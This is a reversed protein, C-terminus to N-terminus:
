AQRRQRLFGSKLVELVFLVGCCLEVWFYSSSYSSRCHRCRGRLILFSIVPLNDYWCICKGCSTCHSAAKSLSEGRPIRWVCVNLFSGWCAGFAFIWFFVVAWVAPYVMGIRSYWDTESLHYWMKWNMM